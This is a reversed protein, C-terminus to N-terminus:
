LHQAGAAVLAYVPVMRGADACIDAMLWLWLGGAILSLRVIRTPNRWANTRRFAFRLIGCAMPDLRGVTGFAILLSCGERVM